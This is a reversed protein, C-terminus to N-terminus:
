SSCQEADELVACPISIDESVQVEGEYLAKISWRASSAKKAIESRQEPTLKAARAKGGQSQIDDSM